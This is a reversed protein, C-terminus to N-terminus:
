FVENKAGPTCVSPSAQQVALAKSHCHNFKFVIFRTVCPQLAQYSHDITNSSYRFGVQFTLM